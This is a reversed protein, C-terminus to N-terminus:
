AEYLQQTAEPPVVADCDGAILLARKNALCEFEAPNETAIRPDVAGNLTCFGAMDVKVDGFQKKAFHNAVTMATQAAVNGGLSHGVIFVRLHRGVEDLEDLNESNTESDVM